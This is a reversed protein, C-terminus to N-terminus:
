AGGAPQGETMTVPAVAPQSASAVAALSGPIVVTSERQPVEAARKSIKAARRKQDNERAQQRKRDRRQRKQQRWHATSAASKARQKEEKAALEADACRKGRPMYVCGSWLVRSNCVVRLIGSAETEFGTFTSRTSIVVTHHDGRCLQKSTVHTSSGGNTM